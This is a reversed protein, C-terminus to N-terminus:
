SVCRFLRELDKLAFPKPLFPANGTDLDRTVDDQEYGSTLVVFTDPSAARIEGLIESASMDPLTLDLLVAAPNMEIVAALGARGTAAGVAERGIAELMRCAVNRVVEEDEVVLITGAPASLESVRAMTYAAGM